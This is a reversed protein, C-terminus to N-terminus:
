FNTYTATIGLADGQQEFDMIRGGDVLYRWQRKEGDTISCAPMGLVSQVEVLTQFQKKKAGEALTLPIDKANDRDISGMPCVALRADNQMMPVNSEEIVVEPKPTQQPSPPISPSPGVPPTQQPSPTISSTSSSEPATHGIASQVQGTTTKLVDVFPSPSSEPLTSDHASQTVWGWTKGLINLVPAFEFSKASGTLPAAAIGAVIALVALSISVKFLNDIM